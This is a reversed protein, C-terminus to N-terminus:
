IVVSEDFRHGSQVMSVFDDDAVVIHDVLQIDVTALAAAVRHTTTVDEPSPLAIGSPHNHALIVSTANAALAMEVIRRIPVNASNVSGEGVERCSLVKCKADLCLLYVTENRRGFFFPLLYEGCRRISTLFVTQTSRNVM